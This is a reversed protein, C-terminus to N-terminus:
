ENGGETNNHAAFFALYKELDTKLFKQVGRGTLTAGSIGNVYHQPDNGTYKGKSIKISVLEGAENFIKKGKFNDSFWQKSIEGGLGPTEGHKYFTIGKVTQCDPSLALYGYITSWLGKGSIPIVYADAHGPNGSRYVPLLGSDTKENIDAPKKGEVVAGKADVVFGQINAKYLKTIESRTFEGQEPKIGASILINKKMDLEENEVQRPKLLTAAGALLVSCVITVLAAFRFTYANSHM